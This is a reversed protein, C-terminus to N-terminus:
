QQQHIIDENKWTTGKKWNRFIIHWQLIDKHGLDWKSRTFTVLIYAGENAEVLLYATFNSQILIIRFREALYVSQVGKNLCIM